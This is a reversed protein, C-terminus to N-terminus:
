TYLRLLSSPVAASHYNIYWAYPNGIVCLSTVAPFIPVISTPPRSGVTSDVIGFRSNETTHILMGVDTNTIDL